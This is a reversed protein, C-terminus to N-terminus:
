FSYGQGVIQWKKDRSNSQFVLRIRERRKVMDLREVQKLPHM